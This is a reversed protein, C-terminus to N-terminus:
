REGLYNLTPIYAQALQPAMQLIGLTNPAFSWSAEPYGQTWSQIWDVYLYIQTGPALDVVTAQPTPLGYSQVTFRYLGPPFDRYFEAGIPLQAVPAGNAFILPVAAQVAPYVTLSGRLFWVRATGPKIPPIQAATVTASPAACGALAAFCLGLWMPIMLRLQRM